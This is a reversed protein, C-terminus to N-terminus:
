ILPQNSKIKNIINKKKKKTYFVEEQHKIKKISNSLQSIINTLASVNPISFALNKANIMDFVLFWTEDLTGFALFFKANTNM